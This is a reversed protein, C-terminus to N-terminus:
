HGKRMDNQSKQTSRSLAKVNEKRQVEGEQNKELKRLKKKNM